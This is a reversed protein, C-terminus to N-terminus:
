ARVEMTAVGQLYEILVQSQLEERNELEERHLDTGQVRAKRRRRTERPRVGEPDPMAALRVRCSACYVGDTGRPRLWLGGCRECYKLEVQIEQGEMRGMFNM